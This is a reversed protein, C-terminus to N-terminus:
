QCCIRDLSSEKEREMSLEKTEGEGSTLLRCTMRSLVSDISNFDHWFVVFECFM